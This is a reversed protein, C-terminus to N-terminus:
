GSDLASGQQGGLCPLAGGKVGVHAARAARQSIPRRSGAAQVCEGAGTCGAQGGTVLGLGGEARQAANLRMYRWSEASLGGRM